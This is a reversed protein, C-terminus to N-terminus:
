GRLRLRVVTTGPGVRFKSQDFSPPGFTGMANNSFGYPEKPLGMWSTDLVGNENVDHFVKVAYDGEALGPFDVRVTAGSAKAHGPVCGKESNFAEAGPCVALRLMGGAGPKSLEVEVTLTHQAPLLAPVLSCSFLLTRLM